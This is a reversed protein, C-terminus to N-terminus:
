KPSLTPFLTGKLCIPMVNECRYLACQTTSWSPRRDVFSELITPTRFQQTTCPELIGHPFPFPQACRDRPMHWPYRGIDEPGSAVSILITGLAVSIQRYGTAYARIGGEPRYGHRHWPICASIRPMPVIITHVCHLLLISYRQRTYFTTSAHSDVLLRSSLPFRRPYEDVIGHKAGRSPVCKNTAGSRLAYKTSTCEMFGLTECRPKPRHADTCWVILPM